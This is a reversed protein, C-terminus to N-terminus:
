PTVCVGPCDLGGHGPYCSDRPDDVCVQGAPCAPRLGGCSQLHADEVCIGPCDAGGNAPDCNDRPDDVCIQGSSCQAGTLAGCSQPQPPPPPQPQKTPVCIGPCDAGGESPNCGDNPDDVCTQGSPCQAGSLGGCSQAQGQNQGQHPQQGASPTVAGGCATLGLTLLALLEFKHRM